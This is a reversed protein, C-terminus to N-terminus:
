HTTFRFKVSHGMTDGLTVCYIEYKWSNPSELQSFLVLIFDSRTLVSNKELRIKSIFIGTYIEQHSGGERWGLTLWAVLITHSDQRYKWLRMLDGGGFIVCPIETYTHIHTSRICLQPWVIGSRQLHGKDSEMMTQETKLIQAQHCMLVLSM